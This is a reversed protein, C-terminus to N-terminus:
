SEEKPSNSKTQTAPKSKKEKVIEICNDVEADKLRDRWYKEVPVNKSDVEVQTVIGVVGGPIPKNIQVSITKM